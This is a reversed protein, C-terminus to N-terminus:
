GVSDTNQKEQVGKVSLVPVLFAVIPSYFPPHILTLMCIHVCVCVFVCMSMCMYIYKYLSICVRICGYERMYIYIYV